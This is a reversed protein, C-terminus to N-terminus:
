APRILVHVPFPGEERSLDTEVGRPNAVLGEPDYVFCVLTKCDPHVKYRDIDEILQSAIEKAGLGVRTKKVEVVIRERKLLFDMRSSKAAYSPTTEEARIDEFELWLLAHLLDQVDYEDQVILTERQGHRSRLQRAVVHFRSCLKVVTLLPNILVKVQGLRGAALDERVATLIGIGVKASNQYAHDVKQTFTEVYTHDLGLLAKLFSLSQARWEAFAGSDLTTVRWGGSNSPRHTALVAQGKQLLQDVQIIQDNDPSMM